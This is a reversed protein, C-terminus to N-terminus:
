AKPLIMNLFLDQTVDQKSSIKLDIKQDGLQKKMNALLLHKKQLLENAFDPEDVLVLLDIDGGKQSDDVRSGYLCLEARHRELFVDLSIILGKIQQSTLRM